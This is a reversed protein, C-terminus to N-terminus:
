GADAARRGQAQAYKKGLYAEIVAPDVTVEAPTGDAIKRGYDLVVVRSCVGVIVKMVHEIVLITIGRAHIARILDMAEDIETGRLGAMVEDLLLLRPEMALAKALELRKRGAIPLSEAPEDRRSALHVFELVEDARRLAQTASRKAGGAGYMAGVAVNQRVTLNRFPRMVQFTRAVGLRGIRHPPLRNLVTGDFTIRGATPRVSGTMMNVLTTKGAGNPGILGLVEGGAVDFSVNRVAYLGGFRQTAAEVRLLPAAPPMNM